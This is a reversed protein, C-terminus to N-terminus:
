SRHSPNFMGVGGSRIHRRSVLLSEAQFENRTFFGVAQAPPESIIVALDKNKKKIGCNIGNFLFGGPVNM